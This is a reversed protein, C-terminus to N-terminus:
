LQVLTMYIRGGEEGKRKNWYIKRSRRVKYRRSLYKELEKALKLAEKSEDNRDFSIRVHIM